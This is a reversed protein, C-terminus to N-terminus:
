DGDSGRAEDQQRGFIASLIKGSVPAATTGGHDGNEVMVVVAYKPNEYPAFAIFWTIHRRANPPGVEATGTKGAVRVGAVRSRGGTGGAEVVEFMMRKVFELNERRAQIKARVTGAAREAASQPLVFRPQLLTGGNAIAATAMAMQLPTTLVEGQGIAVNATRGDTWKTAQQRWLWDPDPLFGRRESLPAGTPSGFGFQEAMAKIFHIGTKIGYEYFFVDCSHKMADFSDISGHGNAAHCRMYQPGIRLGGRCETRSHATVVGAELMALMVFPKFVSGPPQASQAARNLFPKGPDTLLADYQARTMGRSFGNPDFGPSSAMALVDGNTVDVVLAAGRAPRDAAGPADALASEAVRQIRADLTLVLDRGNEPAIESVAGESFGLADLPVIRGGPRGRLWEDFALEIGAKGVMEPQIFYAREDPEDDHRKGVYGLLHAASAGLPYERIASVDLDVGRRAAHQEAFAAVKDAPLQSWAVLPLAPKQNLHNRIVNANLEPLQLSASLTASMELAIQTLPRGRSADRRLEQFYFAIGYNPRNDALLVHHRDFIRGRSAPLKVSRLSQSRLRQDYFAGNVIQVRFLAVVLIALGCAVVLTLRRTRRIGEAIEADTTM